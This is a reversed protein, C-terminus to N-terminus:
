KSWELTIELHAKGSGKVFITSLGNSEVGIELGFKVNVKNLDKKKITGIIESSIAEIKTKVQEFKFTNKKISSIEGASQQKSARVEINIKTGDSLEVPIIDNKDM